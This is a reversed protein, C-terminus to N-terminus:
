FYKKKSVWNQGKRGMRQEENINRRKQQTKQKSKQREMQEEIRGREMGGRKRGGSDDGKREKREIMKVM